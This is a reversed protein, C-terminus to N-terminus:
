DSKGKNQSYPFWLAMRNSVLEPYNIKAKNLQRDAKKATYCGIVGLLFFIALYKSLLKM